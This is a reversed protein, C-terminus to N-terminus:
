EWDSARRLIAALLFGLNAGVFIGGVFLFADTGAFAYQAVM